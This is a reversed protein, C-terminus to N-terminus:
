RITCCIHQDVFSSKLVWQGHDGADAGLNQLRHETKKRQNRVVVIRPVYMVHADPWDLCRSLLPIASALAAGMHIYRFVACHVEGGDLTM